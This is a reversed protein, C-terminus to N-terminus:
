PRATLRVPMMWQGSSAQAPPHAWIATLAKEIADSADAKGTPDAGFDTALKYLGGGGAGGQAPPTPTRTTPQPAHQRRSWRQWAIAGVIVVIITVITTLFLMEM